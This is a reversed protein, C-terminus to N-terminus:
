GGVGRRGGWYGERFVEDGGDESDGVVVAVIGGEEVGEADDGGRCGGVGADCGAQGDGGGEAVARLMEM